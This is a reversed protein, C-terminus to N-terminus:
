GKTRFTFAVREGPRGQLRFVVAEETVLLVQGQLVRLSGPDLRGRDLLEFRWTGAKGAAAVLEAEVRNPGSRARMALPSVGVSASAADAGNSTVRGWGGEVDLQSSWRLEPGLAATGSGGGPRLPTGSFVADVFRDATMDLTCVPNTGFAACDSETGWRIFFFDPNGEGRLTVTTGSRYDESCDDGGDGGCDIGGDDSEVHGRFTDIKVDVSFLREWTAVVAQAGNMLVNCAGTGSCDGSWGTFELPPASPLPSPQLAVNTGFPYVETCDTGCNVGPGTVAAFAAGTGARRV